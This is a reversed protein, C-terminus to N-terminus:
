GRFAATPAASPSSRRWRSMSNGSASSCYGFLGHGHEALKGLTDLVVSGQEFPGM